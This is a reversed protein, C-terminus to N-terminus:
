KTETLIELEEQLRKEKQEIKEMLAKLEEEEMNDLNYLKGDFLITGMKEEM